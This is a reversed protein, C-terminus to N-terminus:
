VAQLRYTTILIDVQQLSEKLREKFEKLRKKTAKDDTTIIEFRLIEVFKVGDYRWARRKPVAFAGFATLLEERFLKIKDQEIPQGDSYNLPLHIDCNKM